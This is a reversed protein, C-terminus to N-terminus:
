RTIDCAQGALQDRALIFILLLTPSMQPIPLQYVDSVVLRLGMRKILNQM